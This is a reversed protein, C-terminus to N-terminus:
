CVENLIKRRGCHDFSEMLSRRSEGNSQFRPEKGAELHEALTKGRLNVLKNRWGDSEFDVASAAKPICETIDEISVEGMVDEAAELSGM